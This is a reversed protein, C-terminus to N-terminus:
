SRAGDDGRSTSKRYAQGLQIMEDFGADDKSLGFTTRWADKGPSAKALCEARAAPKAEITDTPQELILVM